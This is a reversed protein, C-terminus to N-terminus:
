FRVLSIAKKICSFSADALLSEKKKTRSKVSRKLRLLSLDSPFSVGRPLCVCECVNVCVVWLAFFIHTCVNVYLVHEATCLAAGERVEGGRAFPSTRVSDRSLYLTSCQGLVGFVHSGTM